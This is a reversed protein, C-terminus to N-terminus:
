AGCMLARRRRNGAPPAAAAFSWTKRGIPYYLEWRTAPDYHSQLEGSGLARNYVRVDWIKGSFPQAITSQVVGGVGIWDLSSPTENGTNTGEFAGDLYARRDNNTTFVGALHHATNAVCAKTSSAASVGGASQSQAQVVASSHIGLGYFRTFATSDKDGISVATQNINVVDPRCWCTLSLPMAIFDVPLNDTRMYQTGADDFLRCFGADSDTVLTPPGSFTTLNYKGRPSADRESYSEYGLPFWAFLGQAQPSDENVCCPFDPPRCYRDRTRSTVIGIM